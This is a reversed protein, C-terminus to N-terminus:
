VPWAKFTAQVAGEAGGQKCFQAVLKHKGAPVTIM